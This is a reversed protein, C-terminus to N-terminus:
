SLMNMYRLGPKVASHGRVGLRYNSDISYEQKHPVTKPFSKSLYKRGSLAHRRGGSMQHTTRPKSARRDSLQAEM